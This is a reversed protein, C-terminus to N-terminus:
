PLTKREIYRIRKRAQELYISNPFEALLKEYYERAKGAQQITELNEAIAMLAYDRYFSETNQYINEYVRLSSDFEGVTRYLDALVLELENKVPSTTPSDLFTQLLVRADNYLRQLIFLKSQGYVALGASDGAGEQLLLQLQLVDNELLNKEDPPAAGQAQELYDMAATPKQRYLELMALNYLAKAFIDSNGAAGRQRATFLYQEAQDFDGRILACQALQILATERQHPDRHERSVRLFAAEAQDVNFLPGLNLTAIEMLADQAEPSQPNGAVFQELVSAADSFAHNAVYVDAIKWQARPAFISAAFESIILRYAQEAYRPEGEKIATEAFEYLFQGSELPLKTKGSPMTKLLNELLRYHEFAKEFSFQQTYIDALLLHVAWDLDPRKKLAKELVATLKDANDQSQALQNMLSSLYTIQGPNVTLFNLYEGMMEDYRNLLYHLNALEFAFLSSNKLEKRSNQFVRIADEYMELEVMAEGVLTYTQPDQPNEELLLFWSKKAAYHNGLQYDIWALDVPYRVDRRGQQLRDIFERFKEWEGTQQFSRKAGLYAATDRPNALALRMYFDAAQQYQGAREFAEALRRFNQLESRSLPQSLGAAAPVLVLLGCTLIIKHILRNM